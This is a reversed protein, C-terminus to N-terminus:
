SERARTQRRAFRPSRNPNFINREWIIRFSQLDLRANPRNGRPPANELPTLVLTNTDVPALPAIANTDLAPVSELNTLSNTAASLPPLNTDEASALAKPIVLSWHSIVLSIGIILSWCGTFAWRGIGLVGFRPQRARQENSMPSQDNM